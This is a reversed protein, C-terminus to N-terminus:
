KEANMKLWNAAIWSEIASIYATVCSRKIVSTFNRIMLTPIVQFGLHQAIPLNRWRRLIHHLGLVRLQPVGRLPGPPSGGAFNVVQTLLVPVYSYLDPGTSLRAHWSSDEHGRTM